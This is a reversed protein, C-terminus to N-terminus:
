WSLSFDGDLFNLFDSGFVKMGVNDFDSCWVNL